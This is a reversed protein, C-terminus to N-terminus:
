DDADAGVTEFGSTGEGDVDDDASNVGIGPVLAMAEIAAVAALEVAMEAAELTALPTLMALSLPLLLLLVLLLATEVGPSEFVVSPIM